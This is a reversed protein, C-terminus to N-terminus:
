STGPVPLPARERLVRVIGSKQAVVRDDVSWVRTGKAGTVVVLARPPAATSILLSAVFAQLGHRHRYSNPVTNLVHAMTGRGTVYAVDYGTKFELVVPAGAADEGIGDIVACIGMRADGVRVQTALLRIRERELVRLIERAAKHKPVTGARVWEALQQDARIGAATTSSSGRFWRRKHVSPEYFTRELTKLLGSLPLSSHMWCKHTHSYVPSRDGLRALLARAM